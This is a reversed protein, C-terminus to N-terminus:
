GVIVLHLADAVGILPSADAGTASETGSPTTSAGDTLLAGQCAHTTSDADTATPGTAATVSLVYIYDNGNTDTQDVTGAPSFGSLSHTGVVRAQGVYLEVASLSPTLTPWIASTNSANSQDDFGSTDGAWVASAGLSSAFEQCDIDTALGSNSSSFNVTLTQSGTTTVTGIWMEQSRTSDNSPGAVRVWGTAGGGTISSVTITTSSIKVGVVLVNGTANNTHALTTLGSSNNSALTGAASFSM